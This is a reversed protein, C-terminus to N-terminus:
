SIEATIKASGSVTIVKENKNCVGAKDCVGACVIKEAGVGGSFIIDARTGSPLSICLIGKGGTKKWKLFVKGFITNKQTEARSLYKLAGTRM